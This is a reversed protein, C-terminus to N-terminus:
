AGILEAVTSEWAHSGPAPKWPPAVAVAVTLVWARPANWWALALEQPPPDLMQTPKEQNHDKNHINNNCPVPADMTMTTSFSTAPNVLAIHHDFWLVLDNNTDVGDDMVSKPHPHRTAQNVISELTGGIRPKDWANYKTLSSTRTFKDTARPTRLWAHSAAWKGM